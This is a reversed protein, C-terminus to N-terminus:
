LVNVCAMACPLLKLEIKGSVSEVAQGTQARFAEPNRMAEEANTEDLYRVQARCTGTKIKIEQPEDILSAVLIRRRNQADLLTLGEVQLPHSSHTPCIRDYGALDGFVHYVPFVGGPISHFKAPLPSGLETEVVGRWGTTEYYTLSHVNGAAALRAVSGLTWGAGFLSMQRVDVSVPLEESGTVADDGTADPNFRPRLTIPSIVAPQRCFQQLSEVTGAQGALNEAMTINDFAHVQPIVSYCPLTWSDCAPRARNLEVFYANTGAAMLINPGYSSLQRRALKSWKESTVTEAAHFIMWLSVRPRVSALESLLAALETEARDTLFLAVHLAAGLQGAEQAAQRLACPWQSDALKLDVRLHSLRLARLREIERATLPQGHSATGLGIPPKALVPTTSISLQAGRGSVVPLVKRQQKTLTVTVSQRIRTGKEVKKPFGWELPTCYTKFSADTWNRQDEMEFIEGEFRVEARVGPAPEYALARINKFPQQPSIYKPFAGEAAGGDPHEVTCPKGACELMPHLVCIGIRNRLFTSRAEGDFAFTVSGGAQGTILGNWSFDIEGERCSVDFALRFSDKESDLKLNTVQPLITGWNQDRVAAYIARVVEHDGVRLYRLFAHAPEFRMTLPGASLQLPKASPEPSGYRLIQPPM